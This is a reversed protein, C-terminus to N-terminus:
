QKFALSKIQISKQHEQIRAINEKSHNTVLIRFLILGKKSPSQVGEYDEVNPPTQQSNTSLIIDLDNSNFEQDNKVYYNVTNPEYFAVSWYTSDPLNGTLNMPGESLDYFCTVYLFDPNPKVVFRSEETPLQAYSMQNDEKNIKKKAGLYLINSYMKLTSKYGLFIGLLLVLLYGLKRKM